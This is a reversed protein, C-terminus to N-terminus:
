GYESPLKSSSKAKSKPLPRRHEGLFRRLSDVFILTARGVKAAEIEGEGILLYIKSRSLGTMRVAESIRISIPEISPSKSSPPSVRHDPRHHGM